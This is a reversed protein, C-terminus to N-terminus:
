EVYSVSYAFVLVNYFANCIIRKGGGMISLDVISVQNGGFNDETMM